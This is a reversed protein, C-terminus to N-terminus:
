PLAQKEDHERGVPVSRLCPDHYPKGVPYKLKKLLRKYQREELHATVIYQRERRQSQGPEECFAFVTQHFSIDQSNDDSAREMNQASIEVPHVGHRILKWLRQPTQVRDQIIVAVQQHLCHDRDDDGRKRRHRCSQCSDFPHRQFLAPEPKLM